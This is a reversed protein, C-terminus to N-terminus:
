RKRMPINQHCENCDGTSHCVNCSRFNRYAEEAHGNERTYSMWNARAHSVPKQSRHCDACYSAPHCVACLRRDHTADQGHQTTKWNFIHDRPKQTQHCEVCFTDKNEHCFGCSRDTRSAPGHMMAWDGLHSEPAKEKSIHEHCASCEIPADDGNHCEKCTFMDPWELESMKDQDQVDGHCTSCEIGEHIDHGFILDQYSEPKEPASDEEVAYDNRYSKLTHCLLCDDSPNEMDIDHCEGCKDMSPNEMTGDDKAAHCDSCAMENDQVHLEHNFKLSGEERKCGTLALGFSIALTIIILYGKKM